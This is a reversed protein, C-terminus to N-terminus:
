YRPKRGVREVVKKQKGQDVKKLLESKQQRIRAKVGLIKSKVQVENNGGVDLLTRTCKLSNERTIPTNKGLSFLSTM